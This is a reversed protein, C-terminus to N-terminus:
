VRDLELRSDAGVRLADACMDLDDSVLCIPIRRTAANTKVALTPGQWDLQLADIFFLAARREILVEVFLQTANLMITDYQPLRSCYGAFANRKSLFVITAPSM